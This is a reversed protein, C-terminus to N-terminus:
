EKLKALLEAEIEKQTRKPPQNKRIAYLEKLHRAEKRQEKPLKNIDTTRYGVIKVFQTERTLGDFLSKYEFWHLRARRLNIGYQQMFAACILDYDEDYDYAIDTNTKHKEASKDDSKFLRWFSLIGSMLADMPEDFIDENGFFLDLNNSMVYIKFNPPINDDMLIREVDIWTRFDTRLRYSNRKIRISKPLNRIASM